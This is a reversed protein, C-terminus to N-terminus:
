VQAFAHLMSWPLTAQALKSFSIPAGMEATILSAMAKRRAGYAGALRGIAASREAPALRPWAGPDVGPRAAVVARDVDDPTAAAAVGVVETTHPSVVELVAGSSPESWAGGIYLRKEDM